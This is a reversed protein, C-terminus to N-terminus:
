TTVENPTSKLSRLLGLTREGLETIRYGASRGTHEAIALGLEQCRSHVSMRLSNVMDPTLDNPPWFRVYFRRMASCAADREVGPRQSLLLLYEGMHEAEALHAAAVHRVYFDAEEPDFPPFRAEGNDLVGNRMQAFSLGSPTLGAKEGEDDKVMDLFGLYAPAGVVRGDGYFSGLYTDIFRRVSRDADRSLSPFGTTLREGRTTERQGDVVELAARWDLAEDGLASRLAELDLYPGAQGSAMEAIGRLVSKM